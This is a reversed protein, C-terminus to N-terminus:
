NGRQTGGVGFAESPNVGDRVEIDGKRVIRVSDRLPMWDADRVYAADRDLKFMKEIHALATRINVNMRETKALDRLHQHGDVNHGENQKINRLRVDRMARRRTQCSKAILRMATECRLALEISM